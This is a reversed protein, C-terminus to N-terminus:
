RRGKSRRFFSPGSSIRASPKKQPLQPPAIVQIEQQRNRRRYTGSSGNLADLVTANTENALLLFNWSYFISNRELTERIQALPELLGSDRALLLIAQPMRSALELLLLKRGFKLSFRSSM